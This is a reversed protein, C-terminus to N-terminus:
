SPSRPSTSSAWNWTASSSTRPIPITVWLLLSPVFVALPALWYVRRDAWSPLIDEKTILKLADAIPQLTGHPGVRMPGMRQQIRALAKRELWTLVLVMVSLFAFILVAGVAYAIPSPIDQFFETM